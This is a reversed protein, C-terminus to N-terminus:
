KKKIANLLAECNKRLFIFLFSEVVGKALFSTSKSLEGTGCLELTSILHVKDPAEIPNALLLKLKCQKKKHNNIILM